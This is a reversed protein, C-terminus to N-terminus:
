VHARGIKRVSALLCTSGSRLRKRVPFLIAPAECTCYLAARVCACFLLNNIRCPTNEPPPRNRAHTGIVIPSPGPTMGGAPLHGEDEVIWAALGDNEMRLGHVQRKAPHGDQAFSVLM